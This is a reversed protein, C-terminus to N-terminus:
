TRGAGARCLCPRGGLVCACAPPCAEVRRRRRPARNGIGMALAANKSPRGQRCALGAWTHGAGVCRCVRGRGTQQPVRPPARAAPLSPSRPRWEDGVRRPGGERRREGARGRARRSAPAAASRAPTRRRSVHPPALLTSNQPAAPPVFFFLCRFPRGVLCCFLFFARLKGRGSAPARTRAVGHRGGVAVPAALPAPLSRTFSPTAGGDGGSM